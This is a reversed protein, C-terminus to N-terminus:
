LGKKFGEFYLLLYHQSPPKLTILPHGSLRCVRPCSNQQQQTKKSGTASYHLPKPPGKRRVVFLRFMIYKIHTFMNIYLFICLHKHTCLDYKHILSRYTFM